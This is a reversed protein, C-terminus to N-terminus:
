AAPVPRFEAMLEAGNAHVTFQSTGQLSHRFMSDIVRTGFGKRNPGTDIGECIERWHFSVTGPGGEARMSWDIAVKGDPSALAGHKIANTVLEHVAMAFAQAALPSLPVEPGTLHFNVGERGGQAEFEMRLIDALDTEREPARLLLDQTRALADLRIQFAQRFEDLSSSERLIQSALAGVSALINKIRHHLEGVLTHQQAEMRRLETVDRIALLILDLHDLRRGNLLMIRRGVNEFVHEVEVDNFANDDPLVDELLERLQPIDWQGNGLEYVFRGKSESPSVGFAEYFPQNAQVVKLDWDLVLLAERVSDILKKQFEQHGELELRAQEVSTRDSVALLILEPRSGDAALRKANLIMIRKGIDPFKHEVRYNTVTSRQSLVKELLDRLEPIDWQGNGLEFLPRDRTEDSSVNFFDCFAANSEMVTLDSDLILLPQDITQIVAEAL